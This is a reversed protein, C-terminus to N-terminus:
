YYTVKRETVDTTEPPSAGPESRSRTQRVWNGHADNEYTYTIKSRISGDRDYTTEELPEQRDDRVHVTRSYSEPTDQIFEDRRIRKTEADRVTRQRETLKGKEYREIEEIMQRGEYSFRRRMIPLGNSDHTEDGIHHGKADWVGVYTRLLVEGEFTQTTRTRQKPDVKEVYRSLAKGDADYSVTEKTSADPRNYVTRSVLRGDGDYRFMERPNGQTDLRFSESYNVRPDVGESQVQAPQWNKGQIVLRSLISGDQAYNVEETRVGEPSYTILTAPRLMGPVGESSVSSEETLVSRVPGKLGDSEAQSRVQASASVQLLCPVLVAAVVGSLTPGRHTGLM